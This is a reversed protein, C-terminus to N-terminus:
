QANENSSSDNVYKDKIEFVGSFSYNMCFSASHAADIDIKHTHVFSVTQENLSFAFELFSRAHSVEKEALCLFLKQVLSDIM